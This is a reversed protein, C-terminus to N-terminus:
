AGAPDPDVATLTVLVERDTIRQLTSIRYGQDLLRRVRHHRNLEIKYPQVLHLQLTKPTNLANSDVM